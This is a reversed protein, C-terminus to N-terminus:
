SRPGLYPHATLTVGRGRKVGPFPIGTGTYLTPGSGNQVCLSCFFIEQRQWSDFTSRGSTWDTALCQVSSGRIGRRRLSTYHSQKIKVKDHLSHLCFYAMVSIREAFGRSSETFGWSTRSGYTPLWQSLDDISM